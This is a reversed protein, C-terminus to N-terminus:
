LISISSADEKDIPEGWNDKIFFSILMSSAFLYATFLKAGEFKGSIFEVTLCISTFGAAWTSFNM